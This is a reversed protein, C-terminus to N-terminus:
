EKEMDNQHVWGREEPCEKFTRSVQMKFPKDVIQTVALVRMDKILTSHDEAKLRKICKSKYAIVSGKDPQYGRM